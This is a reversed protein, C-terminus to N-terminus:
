RKPKGPAFSGTPSTYWPHIEYALWGAMVAPDTKLLQEVEEKTPCDFIFIGLWAGKDGFPGAVKIKGENYLRTINDLHGRQISAATASDHTRNSGKTLMVFFYQRIGDEARKPQANTQAHSYCQIGALVVILFIKKM